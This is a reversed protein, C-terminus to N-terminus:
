NYSGPLFWAKKNMAFFDTKILLCDGSKEFDTVKFWESKSIFTLQFANFHYRKCM